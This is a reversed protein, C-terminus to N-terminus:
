FRPGLWRGGRQELKLDRLTPSKVNIRLYFGRGFGGPTWTFTLEWCHLDRYIHIDHSIIDRKLLDFRASYQIRWFKTLQLRLNTNMWFDDRPNAPNSRNATYRLNLSLDWLKEGPIPSENLTEPRVESVETLDSVVEVTDAGLTDEAATEPQLWRLRKGSFRFGTAASMRVLRPTPLGWRNTAIKNVSKVSGNQQEFRYFDHTLSIDLNLKMPLRARISSRLRSLKFAEAAFNYSTGMNWTLLNDIKKETDGQKVKAQFVNKLSINLNRQESKSTAGIQTGSFHDFLVENGESDSLRKFYGFDYGFLPKSYDPRFSFGISPTVTHRISRLSGIRVPFLGYLKTNASLSFSATHRARFGAVEDKDILVGSTDVQPDFYKTIWQEQYSLSPRLAIYKFLRHSGSLSINHVWSNDSEQRRDDWVSTTDLAVSEYFGIGTNRLSSSYSWYFSPGLQAQGKRFTASPFLTTTEVVRMGPRTPEQYYISSTDIKEKAMLNRTESLNTSISLNHEPWRKSYTANSIAKQDLRTDRHIGLKRNFQNDSYYRANVNLSQNHRLEQRHNWAGSWRVAKPKNFLNAIEQGEVTRNYRFNLNGSYAYRKSYRNMNHFVIGQKDYFDLTFQSDGYDNIAWYYGLGRLYQGVNGSEGYSPMIWGSHRKGSQDPFVGFPLALLPIGGLYLVIPKVIIKDKMIMKMRHSAFHFHPNPDLDCTTYIGSEVLFIDKTRNRIEHGTYYGDEMRTKGHMVRGRGTSLNYILSRGVMPERGNESFSPWEQNGNEAQGDRNPLAHLLNDEWTVAIFGANLRTERYDIQASKQLTTKQDPVAYHITDAKYFIPADVDRSVEDPHYEGRAGGVIRITNIDRGGVTDPTFLLTITDGSAINKGQYLSDEFLHYLSTAMGELRVSDLEGDILYAELRRGTM